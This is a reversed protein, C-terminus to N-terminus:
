VSHWTHHSSLCKEGQQLTKTCTICITSDRVSLSTEWLLTLCGCLPTNIQFHDQWLSGLIGYIKQTPTHYMQPVAWNKWSVFVHLQSREEASERKRHRYHIYYKEDSGGSEVFVNRIHRSNRKDCKQTDDREHAHHRSTLSSLEGSLLLRGCGRRM